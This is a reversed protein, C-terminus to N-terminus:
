KKDLWVLANVRLREIIELLDDHTVEDLWDCALDADDALTAEVVMHLDDAVARLMLDIHEVLVCWVLSPKDEGCLLRVFLPLVAGSM